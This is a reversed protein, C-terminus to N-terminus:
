ADTEPVAVQREIVELPVIPHLLVEKEGRSIADRDVVEVRPNVFLVTGQSSIRDVCRDAGSRGVVDDVAGDVRRCPLDLPNARETAGIVSGIASGGMEVAHRHIDGCLLEILQVQSPQVMLQALLISALIFENGRQGV